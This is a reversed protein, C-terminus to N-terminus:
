RTQRSGGALRRTARRGGSGGAISMDSSVGSSSANGDANILVDIARDDVDVRAARGGVVPAVDLRPFAATRAANEVLRPADEGIVVDHVSHRRMSTSSKSPLLWSALSTPVSGLSSRATM